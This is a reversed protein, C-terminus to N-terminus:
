EIRLVTNLLRDGAEGGTGKGIGLARLRELLEGISRQKEWYDAAGRRLAEDRIEESGFATLLVVATGPYREHVRSVFELGAVDGFGELCLDTIVLDVTLSALVREAEERSEATRVDVNGSSLIPPLGSRVSPDDDVILVRKRDGAGAM